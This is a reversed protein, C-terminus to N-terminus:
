FFLSYALLYLSILILSFSHYFILSYISFAIIIILTIVSVPKSAKPMCIRFIRGGDLPYVPLINLAFLLLNIDDKLIIYLILNVIPGSIIVLLEKISSLASSYRLALGYFSLTLKDIRGGVCLLAIIHGLEHLSSFLLLYAIDKAGLLLAFSLLLFFSYEIVFDFNFLRLKM